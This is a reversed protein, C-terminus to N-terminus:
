IYNVELIFHDWIQFINFKLPLFEQLDDYSKQCEGLLYMKNVFQGVFFSISLSKKISITRFMTMYLAKYATTIFHLFMKGLQLDIYIFWHYLTCM